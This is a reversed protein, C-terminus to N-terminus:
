LSCTQWQLTPEQGIHPKFQRQQIHEQSLMSGFLASDLDRHPYQRCSLAILFCLSVTASMLITSWLSPFLVDRGFLLLCIIRIIIGVVYIISIFAGYSFFITCSTNMLLLISSSDFCQIYRLIINVIVIIIDYSGIQNLFWYSCIMWEPCDVQSLLSSLLLYFWSM